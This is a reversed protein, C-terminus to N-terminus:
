DFDAETVDTAERIMSIFLDGYDKCKKAGVGHVELFEDQTVPKRRAMDRLSADNFVLYPPVGLNRAIETRNDKLTAFLERDVGEWSEASETRKKRTATVRRQSLRPSESPDRLLGWGRDTVALTSYEGVKSLYEQAVLQEIWDRVNQSQESKLLGYTSLEDHGSDRIRQERSACLVKSTYDAGYRQKLRVVCSLIKQALVVPEDVLELEDLCVDCSRCEANLQGGFHEVLGAHRCTVGTCFRFIANLSQSASESAAGDSAELMSNWRGYDAGSYFLWCEADLGDRGARGSEQQYNEISKPMGAHIVFRVDSKDIGMGFAVTAVVIDVEDNVFQEQHHKRVGDELGAHYPLARFGETKLRQCHKEVDNRTLCYVIGSENPHKRIVELMQSALDSQRQVRYTLNLRDFSGVILHPDDLTLQDCIDQRVRETATATYAHVGVGPFHEKLMALARYEPRFDHGWESICHAEDIAIMSIPVSKLFDITREMVLREPAVYLLRTAGERVRAAVERRETYSLTSNIYDAEIGQQRLGDVQDKMLSILPSVVIAMGDLCLAPVQYCVSKGGGTPLVVISDRANMVCAMAQDQLPRFSSHGWYESLTDQLRQRDEGALETLQEDNLHTM